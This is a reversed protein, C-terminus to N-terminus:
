ERRGDGLVLYREPIEWIVMRPATNKFDSSELYGRMTEFPGRGEDAANLLDVQLASKLADEFGWLRNASYSTGVLTVPIEAAGFLSDAGGGSSPAIAHLRQVDEPGFDYVAKFPGLPLYRTLDGEYTQAEIEELTFATRTLGALRERVMAVEGIAGAAAQAGTLSWHTDTRQFADPLGALAAYLDASAIGRARLFALTDDYLARNYDPYALAGLHAAHVRAKAPVLAVVLAIERAALKAQVDEIFDLHARLIEDRNKPLAFEEDSFLWGDAGVIVGARGQGFGLWEAMGWLSLSVPQVPLDKAFHEEYLASWRGNLANGADVRGAQHSSSLLVPLATLFVLVLFGILFYGSIRQVGGAWIRKM